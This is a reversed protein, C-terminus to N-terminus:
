DVKAHFETFRDPHLVVECKVCFFLTIGKCGKRACRRQKGKIIWHDFRDYRICQQDSKDGSLPLFCERFKINVKYRKNYTDVISRRFGFLDFSDFHASRAQVRYLQFANNVAVDVCFRFVPWWSKKSWYNTVYAAFNQNLRDVGGMGM